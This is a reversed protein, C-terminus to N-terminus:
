DGKSSANSDKYEWERVGSMDGSRPLSQISGRQTSLRRMKRRIAANDVGHIVKHLWDDLHQVFLRRWIFSRIISAITFISAFGIAADVYVVYGFLPGVYMWLLTSVILGTGINLVTEILSVTKTQKM